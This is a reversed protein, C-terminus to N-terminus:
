YTIPPANWLKASNTAASYQTPSMAAPWLNAAGKAAEAGTDIPASKGGFLKGISGKLSDMGGSEMGVQGAGALLQGGLNLWGNPVGASAIGLQDADAQRKAFGNIRNIDSAANGMDIAEGQRLRTASTTKGLLRALSEANKMQTLNSAAKAADYDNSVDGTTRSNIDNAAQTEAVPKILQQETQQAIQDQAQQRTNPDFSDSAERARQQAQMQFERQRRQSEAMAQQQRKHADSSAKMQMATGGLMAVIAAISFPDM